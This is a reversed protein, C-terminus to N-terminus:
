HRSSFFCCLPARRLLSSFLSCGGSLFCGCLFFCRFPLGNGLSFNCLLLSCGSFSGSLTLGSLALGGLALGRLTLGGLTRGLLLCGLALSGFALYRLLPRGLLLFCGGLPLLSFCLFPRCCFPFLRGSLFLFCWSLSFSGLLFRALSRRLSLGRLSFGLASSDTRIQLSESTKFSRLLLTERHCRGGM